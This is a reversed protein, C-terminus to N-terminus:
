RQVLQEYRATCRRAPSSPSTRARPAAPLYPAVFKVRLGLAHCGLSMGNGPHGIHERIPPVAVSDAYPVPHEDVRVTIDVGAGAIVLVDISV